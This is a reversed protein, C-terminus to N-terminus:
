SVIDNRYISLYMSIRVTSTNEHIVAFSYGGITVLKTQGPKVMKSSLM